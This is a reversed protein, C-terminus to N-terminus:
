FHKNRLHVTLQEFEVDQGDRIQRIRSALAGARKPTLDTLEEAARLEAEPDRHWWRFNM